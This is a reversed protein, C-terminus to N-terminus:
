EYSPINIIKLDIIDIDEIENMLKQYAHRSNGVFNTSKTMGVLPCGHSDKDTNGAHIRIGEFKVGKGDEVSNNLPNNYLLPMMKKFRNSYSITVKYDGEPIATEGYIKIGKPRVVDELTYCFFKGKYFLEGITSKTTYWKRFIEIM